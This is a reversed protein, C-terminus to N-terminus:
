AGNLHFLDALGRGGIADFTTFRGPRLSATLETLGPLVLESGDDRADDLFAWGQRMWPWCGAAYGTAPPTAEYTWAASQEAGTRPPRPPVAPVHVFPLANRWEGRLHALLAIDYPIPQGAAAYLYALRRINDLDGISEYLYASLVGLLPDVRKGLTLNAALNAANAARLSGDEMAAIATEADAAIDRRGEYAPRYVLATIGRADRLLTAVFGPLAAAAAVTEDEFELLVPAPRSLVFGPHEGVRWWGADGHPEGFVGAPTHIKRINGGEVAFGAGTEFGNPRSQSRIRDVFSRQCPPADTWPKSSDDPGRMPLDEGGRSPVDGGVLHDLEWDSLRRSGELFLELTRRQGGAGLAIVAQPAPWDPLPPLPPPTQPGEQNKALYVDDPDQFTPSVAPLLTRQYRGAVKPVENKLYKGLSQSTITNAKLTSFANASQGWLGDLLVGSFLCRDQAPSAGPIMFAADGDQAAVFKDIDPQSRPAPGNGLVGDRTLDAADMDSPLCRCSDAFISIQQINWKYLRRKLVEVAVARQETQWDSLLWLGEEAEQILGHGAFYLLMRHIPGGALLAEIEGRLRPVTVPTGDDTILASQYGQSSAWQHFWRACNLAGRLRRLPKAEAVGIAVALNRNSDPM